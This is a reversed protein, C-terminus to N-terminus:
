CPLKIGESRGVPTAANSRALGYFRVDVGGALVSIAARLPIESYKMANSSHNPLNEAIARSGKVSSNWYELEPVVAAFRLDLISKGNAQVQQSGFAKHSLLTADMM